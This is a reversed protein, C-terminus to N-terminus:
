AFDYSATLVVVHYFSSYEGDISVGSIAGVSNDVDFESLFQGSYAAAISFDNIKYRLGAALSHRDGDPVVNSYDSELAARQYFAYGAMVDWQSNIEYHAGFNVSITDQFKHSSPDGAALVANTTGYTFDFRDYKAWGTWGLDLEVDWKDNINYKLGAIVADPFILDTDASTNFFSNGFIAQMIAGQINNVSYEGKMHARVASRYYLGVSYPEEPPTILFGLNWGMGHGTTDFESEADPIGGPGGNAISIASSNLKSNQRLNVDMYSGGAGFSLWENVQYAGALMYNVTMIQNAFGTYKFNGISSYQNQLGFPSNVGIGVNLRDVYPVDLSTFFSPIYAPLTAADESTGSAPTFDGIPFLFTTGLLINNDVKTLGAPNYALTSADQPDAVGANGKGLIYANDLGVEIGASGAAFVSVNSTLVCVLSLLLSRQLM